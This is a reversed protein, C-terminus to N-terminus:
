AGGDTPKEGASLEDPQLAKINKGRLRNTIFKNCLHAIVAVVPVGIFMGVFGFYAGGVTIAFIM